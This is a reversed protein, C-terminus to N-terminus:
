EDQRVEFKYGVGRITKLSWLPHDSIKERIRKIHVDVTRPDGDFDIGWIENLLQQRTFVQNSRSALYYLLSIEKLPMEVKGGKLLVQFETLNIILSPVEVLQHERIQPNTRRFVAKIRAMLEKPEFPKVIYDDIGLSFGNIKDYSEGKATLLIIPTQYDMRIAKCVELGNMRPMMIDLVVLDPISDYFFTNRGMAHSVGTRTHSIKESYLKILEAIYPDDEIILIKLRKM